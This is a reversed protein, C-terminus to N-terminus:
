VLPINHRQTRNMDKSNLRDKKSVRETDEVQQAGFRAPNARRQSLQQMPMISVNENGIPNSTPFIWDFSSSRRQM